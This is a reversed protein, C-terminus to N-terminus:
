GGFLGLLADRYTNDTYQQAQQAGFTDNFQSQQQGLQANFQSGQQALGMKRLEQDMQAIQLQLSRASEQDGSQVALSLMSALQSRRNELERGMLQAKFGSVDQGAQENIGQVTTDFAGSSQGGSLLGQFAAREAMQAREAEASRTRENRYAETQGAIIPDNPSTPQGFEQLKQLLLARISNQFDNQPAAQPQAFTAPAAGQSAAPARPVIQGNVVSGADTWGYNNAGGVDGIMDIAEGTPLMSVDNKTTVGSWGANYKALDAASGGSWGSRYAERNFPAPQTTPATPAAIGRNQAADQVEAPNVPAFDAANPDEEYQGTADNWIKPKAM